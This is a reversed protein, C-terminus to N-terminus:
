SNVALLVPVGFLRANAFLVNSQKTFGSPRAFWQNAGSVIIVPKPSLLFSYFVPFPIMEEYCILYAAVRNQVRMKGSNFWHREFTKAKWPKWLGLPMPQRVPHVQYGGQGFLIFVNNFMNTDIQAGLIVNAQKAKAQVFTSAWQMESSVLWDSAINEPFLIVKAGSQLASQAAAILYDQRLPLATFSMGINGLHTNVAVWGVPPSPREYHINLALAVVGLLFLSLVQFVTVYTLLSVLFLMLLVTLGLGLFGLGPFLLGAATIPQLWVFYGLPPLVLLVTIFFARLLLNLLEKRSSYFIIWWFAM